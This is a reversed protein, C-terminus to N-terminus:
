TQNVMLNKFGEHYWFKTRSMLDFKDANKRLSTATKQFSRVHMNAARCYLESKLSPFKKKLFRLTLIQKTFQSHCDTSLTHQEFNHIDHFLFVYLSSRIRRIGPNRDLATPIPSGNMIATLCAYVNRLVYKLFM